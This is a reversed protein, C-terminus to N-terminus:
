QAILQTQAVQKKFDSAVGLCVKTENNEYTGTEDDWTGIEYFAFDEPHANFKTGAQNVALEFARVAEMHNRFGHRGDEWIKIKM